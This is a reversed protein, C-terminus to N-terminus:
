VTAEGRRDRSERFSYLAEEFSTVAKLPNGQHDYIYGAQQLSIAKGEIDKLVTAQKLAEENLHLAEDWHYGDRALRAKELLAQVEPRPLSPKEQQPSQQATVSIPWTTFVLALAILFAFLLTLHLFNRM